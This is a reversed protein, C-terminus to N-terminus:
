GLDQFTFFIKIGGRWISKEPSSGAEHSRLMAQQPNGGLSIGLSSRKVQGLSYSISRSEGMVARTSYVRWRWPRCLYRNGDQDQLLIGGMVNNCGARACSAKLLNGQGEIYKGTPARKLQPLAPMAVFIRYAKPVGLWPKWLLGM